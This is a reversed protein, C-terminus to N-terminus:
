EWRRLRPEFTLFLVAILVVTSATAVALRWRAVRPRPAPRDLAAEINMWIESPAEALPLSKLAENGARLQAFQHRCEECQALHQEVRSSDRGLAGDAYAALRGSVHRTFISMEERGRFSEASGGSASTRPQAQLGGDGHFLRARAGDTRLFSRR